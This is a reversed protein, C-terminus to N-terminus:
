GALVHLLACVATALVIPVSVGWLMGRLAQGRMKRSDPYKRAMVALAGLSLSPLLIGLVVLEWQIALVGFAADSSLIGALFL